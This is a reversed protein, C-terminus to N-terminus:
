GNGDLIQPVLFYREDSNPANALADTRSLSPQKTDTRFVNFQEVAHAMPEVDTTDVEGLVTVYELVKNLQAAFQDLDTDSLKLRALKAVKEVDSRDM